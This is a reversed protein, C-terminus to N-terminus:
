LGNKQRYESPSVGFAVRFCKGFYNQDNFGCRYAIEKVPLETSQLLGVARNMRAKTIFEKPTVGVLSKLKRNLGSKSIGLEQALEVVSLDSDDMHQEVIQLISHMFQQEEESLDSDECRKAEPEAREDLGDASLTEMQLHKERDYKELLDLYSNLLERQKRRSTRIMRTVYIVIYIILLTLVGYLVKATTTQWITPKVCLIVTKVNGAWHGTPLKSEVQLKHTGPSLNLLTVTHSNELSNWGGNDLQFRYSISLSNVYDIAAFEIKVNRQTEDLHITDQESVAELMDGEEVSVRTLVIRPAKTRMTLRDIDMLVLGDMLGMLWKGGKWRLPQADSFNLEDTWTRHDFYLNLEREMDVGTLGSTGVFWMYRGYEFASSLFDEPMDRRDFHRFTVDDGTMLVNSEVMNLGGGETCIYLRRAKDEAMFMIASCSLSSEKEGRREYLRFRMSTPHTATLRTAFLGRSTGVLLESHHNIYVMRVSIYKDTKDDPAIVIPLSGKSKALCPMCFLGQDMTAIWLRGWCDKQMSYVDNAKRGNRGVLAIRSITYSGDVCPTLHLLGGPKCGLWMSGDTDQLAGYVASCFATKEGHLKGDAGLFGLLNLHSDYIRVSFDDRSCVWIRGKRDRFLARVQCGPQWLLRTAYRPKQYSMRVGLSDVAWEVGDATRLQRLGHESFGWKQLAQVWSLHSDEFLGTRIDFIFCCDEVNCYIFSDRIRIDKIRNVGMSCGDGPQPKFSVFRYGDWRSLGNWTAVWIMGNKDQVLSTAHHHSLGNLENLRREVPMPEAPQWANSAAASVHNIGGWLCCSLLWFIHFLRHEIM